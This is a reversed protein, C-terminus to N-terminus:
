VAPEDGQKGDLLRGAWALELATRYPLVRIEGFRLEREGGYVGFAREIDGTELLTRLGRNFSEKWEASAKIEIGVARAGRQWILDVETGSETRWYHFRAGHSGWSNLARLENLVWTEFLAGREARSPKDRQLGALARQVGCDFLYFKPHAVEKVKARKRWAPLRWGILTDELIGFYGLVTSRAIGAERAINSVNLVQGSYLAAVSLFRHFGDLNRVFAEQWIEERLYTEVYADLFESKDGTTEAAVSLPLQGYRLAEELRFDGRMELPSLPFMRKSWARGALMNAGSRKLKRASSGSMAFRHARQGAFLLAHVEDLLEPLKQIEDIIVWAGAPLAAVERALLSPDRRYRLYDSSRLLDVTLGADPLCQSLWVSKGVGRPGFLFFSQRPLSLLRPYM